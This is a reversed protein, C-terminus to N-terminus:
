RYSRRGPGAPVAQRASVGVVLLLYASLEVAAVVAPGLAPLRETGQFAATFVTGRELYSPLQTLALAADLYTLAVLALLTAGGAALRQRRGTLLAALVLAGLALTLPALVAATVALDPQADRVARQIEVLRVAAYGTVLVAALVTGALAPRSPRAERWRVTLLLVLVFVLAAWSLRLGTVFGLTPDAAGPRLVQWGRDASEAPMTAWADAVLATLAVPVAWPRAPPRATLAYVSLLLLAALEAQRLLSVATLIGAVHVVALAGAAAPLIPRYRM